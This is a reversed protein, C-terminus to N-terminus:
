KLTNNMWEILRGSTVVTFKLDKKVISFTFGKTIFVGRVSKIKADPKGMYAIVSSLNDQIAKIKLELQKGEQRFKRLESLTQASTYRFQFNKCELVLLHNNYILLIDIQGPLAMTQSSNILPIDGSKVDNTVFVNQIERRIHEAVDKEFQIDLQNKYKQLAQYFETHEIENNFIDTYLGHIALQFVNTPCAFIDDFLPILCKRLPRQTMWSYNTRENFPMLHSLLKIAQMKSIGLAHEILQEFCDMTGVLFEDGNPYLELLRQNLENLGDANIGVFKRTTKNIHQYVKIPIESPIEEGMDDMFRDYYENQELDSNKNLHITLKGSHDFHLREINIIEDEIYGVDTILEEIARSYHIVDKFRQEISGEHFSKESDQVQASVMKLTRQIARKDLALSNQWEMFVKQCLENNTTMLFYFYQTIFKAFQGSVEEIPKSNKYTEHFWLITVNTLHSNYELMSFLSVIWNSPYNKLINNLQDFLHGTMQNLVKTIDNKSRYIEGSVGLWNAADAIYKKHLDLDATMLQSQKERDYWHNAKEALQNVRRFTNLCNGCDGGSGILVKPTFPLDIAKCRQCAL